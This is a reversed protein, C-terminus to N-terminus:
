SGVADGVMWAADAEQRDGVGLATVGDAGTDRSVIM